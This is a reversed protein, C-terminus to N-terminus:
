AISGPSWAVAFSMASPQASPDYANVRYLFAFRGGAFSTQGPFASRLSTSRM